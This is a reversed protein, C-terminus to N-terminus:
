DLWRAAAAPLGALPGTRVTCAPISELFARGYGKSRIRRDLVVVVGRDSRTRILRGFGQRFRLIAEPLSYEDFPAEFTESRAAIIPDTPVDFPLRVIVLLSLAEGAVDVGEWFSRTGLLVARDTTRFRELLAHRSSGEGQEYVVVGAELLAPTIAASTRRLQDYSTFLVLARGGTARCTRILTSEVVRQYTVRDQPEPLDDALYLLTSSEFDFPSGLALEEAEDAMLRRRLFDFEGATTLTASTMIVSTKDHWLHRQLLPGVELPAAHLSVRGNNPQLEVWYITQVDHEFIMGELGAYLAAAERAAGRLAVPLDEHVTESVEVLSDISDCLSALTSAIRELPVRLEEWAAEVESWQPLDRTTRTIREQQNYPGAEVGERRSALFGTLAAFLRGVLEGTEQVADATALVQHEYFARADPGLDRQLGAALQGLWGASATGLDRLLRTFDAETARVALGQTAASELHHAEDVILYDYEPLVRNGTAVDALLLAHNVIVVHASEAAQRALYYPCRGSRYAACRESTCDDNEASLRSWAAADAPGPLSIESRDGSGGQELWVLVKALTRMEEPSRPGIRRMADMRHPCLYNARGKLVVANYHGGLTRNVDPIDKAILQDQLNITNTSIVVRMGNTEAWALAPILYAMSKGTGTGAEVLLHRGESLATAVARLMAVQQARHEFAPLSRSFLGGPELLAALEEVDLPRLSDGPSLPPGVSWRATPAPEAVAHHRAIPAQMQELADEFIWGAGWELHKGIRVIEAVLAPPFTQITERLRLYVQHTTTADPLARHSVPVPIGLADALAALGYRGASPLAVAALEHTDLPQNHRALRRAQLFGLDFGVNHGVVPSDGIFRSLAPAIESFRPQGSVMDDTIKTLQTIFAPIPRGPNLLTTFTDIVRSGAFRVAGVEIIEDRRPDLGTTELDLAVIQDLESATPM